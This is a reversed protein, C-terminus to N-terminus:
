RNKKYKVFGNYFHKVNLGRTIVSIILRNFRYRNIDYTYMYFQIHEACQGAQVLYGKQDNKNQERM